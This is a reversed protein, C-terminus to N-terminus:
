LDDIGVGRCHVPVGVALDCQESDWGAQGQIDAHVPYRVCRQAVQELEEGDKSYFFVQKIDM